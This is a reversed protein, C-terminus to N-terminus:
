KLRGRIWEVTEAAGKVFYSVCMLSLALLPLGEELHGASLYAAGMWSTLAVYPSALLFVLMKFM